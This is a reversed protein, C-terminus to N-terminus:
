YAIGAMILPMTMHGKCSQLKIRGKKKTGCKITYKRLQSIYYKSQSASIQNSCSVIMTGDKMFMVDQTRAPITM